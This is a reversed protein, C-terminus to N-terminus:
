EITYLYVNGFDSGNGPAGILLHTGNSSLATSIGFGEINQENYFSVKFLTNNSSVDYVDVKHGSVSSIALMNGDSSISLVNGIEENNSEGFISEGIKLWDKHEDADYKYVRSLGCSSLQNWSYGPYGIALRYGGADLSVSQSYSIDMYGGISIPQGLEIWDTGRFRYVSAYGRYEEETVNIFTGVAINTGDASLSVSAGFGFVGSLGTLRGILSWTYNDDDLSYVRVVSSVPVGVAIVLGNENCTACNSISLSVTDTFTGVDQVVQTWNLGDSSISFVQVVHSSSNYLNSSLIGM